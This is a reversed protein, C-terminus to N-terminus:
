CNTKELSESLYPTRLKFEAQKGENWQQVPRLYGTVRSYVECEKSCKPCIEESGSIYGHEPCISFTPTLSVYPIQYTEFAKKLLKKVVQPDDIKEGLYAHLVTGGTYLKQLDDQHDLAEFVDDTYEVPLHTSNSYFPDHGKTYQDENACVIDPFM